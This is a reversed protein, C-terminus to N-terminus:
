TFNDTFKQSLYRRNYTKRIKAFRYGQVGYIDTYISINTLYKHCIDGIIHRGSKRLGIVRYAIYILIYVLISSNFM